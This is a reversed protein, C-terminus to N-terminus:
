FILSIPVPLLRGLFCFGYFDQQQAAATARAPLEHVAEQKVVQDDYSLVLHGNIHSVTYVRKKVM